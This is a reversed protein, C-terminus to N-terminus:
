PPGDVTALTLVVSEDDCVGGILYVSSSGGGMSQNALHLSRLFRLEQGGHM